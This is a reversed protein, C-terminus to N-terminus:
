AGAPNIVPFGERGAVECLIGDAAVFHDALGRSRLELAVALQLADMARLRSEFAYREILLEAVAFESEGISFVELRGIAIDERFQHM